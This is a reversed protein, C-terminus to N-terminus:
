LVKETHVIVESKIIQFATNVAAPVEGQLPETIWRDEECATLLETEDQQESVAPTAALLETAEDQPEVSVNKRIKRRKRLAGHEKAANLEQMERESRRVGRGTRVAYINPIRFRFFMFVAASLSVAMVICCIIFGTHYVAILREAEM